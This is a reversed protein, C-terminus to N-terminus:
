RIIAAGNPPMFTPLATASSPPRSSATSSPHVPEVHISAVGAPGRKGAVIPAHPGNGGLAPASAMPAGTDVAALTAELAPQAPRRPTVSATGDEVAAPAAASSAPSPVSPGRGRLVFAGGAAVLAVLGVLALAGAARGPRSGKPAPPRSSSLGRETRATESVQAVNPPPAAAQGSGERFVQAWQSVVAPGAFPLLAAGMAYVSSFRAERDVALGRHVIAEVAVPVSPNLARLPTYQGASILNLLSYLHEHHFPRSGSLCEYLITALSYQDTRADLLKADRVQEPSMYFPTGLLSSTRTLVKGNSRSDSIKSIGFDLLKPQVQGQRTRALFINQPKLDRHIVGEDHAASVGAMVPLLIDIARAVPLVRERELLQSLDEGELFEMVLYPRGDHVGVDTIDVVNPHRIRAATEGERLFRQLHEPSRTVALTVTKVAVVKNLGTHVAEYVAGMGGEGVLRQIRYVGFLTGPPLSDSAGVMM